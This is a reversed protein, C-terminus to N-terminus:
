FWPEKELEGGARLPNPFQGRTDDAGEVTGSGAGEPREGQPPPPPRAQTADARKANKGRGRAMM